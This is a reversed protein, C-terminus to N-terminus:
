RITQLARDAADSYRSDNKSRILELTRRANDFDQQALYAKALFWQADLNDPNHGVIRLIQAIAEAPRHAHLLSVGFMLRLGDLDPYQEVVPRLAAVARGYKQRKQYINYIIALKQRLASDAQRSMEEPFDFHNLYRESHIPEPLVHPTTAADFHTGRLVTFHDEEGNILWLCTVALLVIATAYAIGSLIPRLRPPSILRELWDAFGPVFSFVPVPRRSAAKAFITDGHRAMTLTTKEVFLVDRACEDCGLYHAEFEQEDAESLEGRTYAVITDMRRHYKCNM